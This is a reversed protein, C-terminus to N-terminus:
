LMKKLILESITRKRKINSVSIEEYAILLVLWESTCAKDIQFVDALMSRKKPWLAPQLLYALPYM